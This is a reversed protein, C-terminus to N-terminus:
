CRIDSEEDVILEEIKRPLRGRSLFLRKASEMIKSKPLVNYISEHDGRLLEELTGFFAQKGENLLLLHTAFDLYFEPWHTALVLSMGGKLDELLIRLLYLGFDDLSTEPEDLILIDPSLALSCALAIRRKEGGSLKFPSRDAFVQPSLGVSKMAQDYAKEPDPIGFNRPGYLVEDTVTECFFQQEPVQFVVAPRMHDSIRVEGMTPKLLKGALLALSTKGSGVHGSVLLVSDRPLEFDVGVLAAAELPTHLGYYHSVSKFSLMGEDTHLLKLSCM